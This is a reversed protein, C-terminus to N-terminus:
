LAFLSSWVTNMLSYNNTMQEQVQCCKCVKGHTAYIEHLLTRFMLTCTCFGTSAVLCSLLKKSPKDQYVPTTIQLWDFSANYITNFVVYALTFDSIPLHLYQLILYPSLLPYCFSCTLFYPLLKILMFTVLSICLFHQFAFCQPYSHTLTWPFAVSSTLSKSFIIFKWRDLFSFIFQILHYQIYCDTQSFEPCSALCNWPIVPSSM